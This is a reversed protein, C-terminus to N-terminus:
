LFIIKIIIMILKPLIITDYIAIGVRVCARMCTRLCVCACVRACASVWGGGDINSPGTGGVMVVSNVGM